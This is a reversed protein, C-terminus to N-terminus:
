EIWREGDHGALLWERTKPAILNLACLAAKYRLERFWGMAWTRASVGVNLWSVPLAHYEASSHDIELVTWILGFMKCFLGSDHMEGIELFLRHSIRYCREDDDFRMIAVDGGDLFVHIDKNSM